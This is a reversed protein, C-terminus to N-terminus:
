EKLLNMLEDTEFKIKNEKIPELYDSCWLWGNINKLIYFEKTNSWCYFDKIERVSGIYSAMSANGWPAGIIKVLDGKEYM